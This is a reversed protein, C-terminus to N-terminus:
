KTSSDKVKKPEPVKTMLLSLLRALIQLLGVCAGTIPLYYGGIAITAVISPYMEVFDQKRMYIFNFIYWDSYFLLNSYRGEGSDPFGGLYSHLM